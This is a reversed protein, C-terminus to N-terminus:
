GTRLTCVCKERKEDWNAGRLNRRHSDTVSFKFNERDVVHLCIPLTSTCSWENKVDGCSVSSQNFELGPRNVGAFFFAGTTGMSFSNPNSSIFGKVRGPNSCRVTAYDSYRSRLGREACTLLSELQIFHFCQWLILTPKFSICSPGTHFYDVRLHLVPTSIDLFGPENGQLLLRIM